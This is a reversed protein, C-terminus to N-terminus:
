ITPTCYRATMAVSSSVGLVLSTPSTSIRLYCASAETGTNDGSGLTGGQGRPTLGGKIPDGFNLYLGGALGTNFGATGAIPIEWVWQPFIAPNVAPSQPFLLLYLQAGSNNGLDQLFIDYLAKPAVAGFITDSWVQMTNTSGNTVPTLVPVAGEEFQEIQLFIDVTDSTSTYSGDASSVAFYVPGPIVAATGSFFMQFDNTTTKGTVTMQWVPVANSAPATAMGISAGTAVTTTYLGLYLVANSNGTQAVGHVSNLYINERGISFGSTALKEITYTASM